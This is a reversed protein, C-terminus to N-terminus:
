RMRLVKDDGLEWSERFSPKKVPPEWEAAKEPTMLPIPGLGNHKANMYCYPKGNLRNGHDGEGCVPCILGGSGHKRRLTETIERMAPDTMFRTQQKALEAQRMYGEHKEMLRKREAEIEKLTEGVSDKSAAKKYEEGFLWGRYNKECAENLAKMFEPSQEPKM